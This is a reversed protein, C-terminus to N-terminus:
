LDGKKLKDVLEKKDTPSDAAKQELRARKLGAYWGAMMEAGFRLFERFFEAWLM